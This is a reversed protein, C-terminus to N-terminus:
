RHSTSEVTSAFPCFHERGLLARGFRDAVEPTREVILVDVSDGDGRRSWQCVGIAMRAM